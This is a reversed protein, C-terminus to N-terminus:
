NNQRNERRRQYPRTPSYNKIYETVFSLMEPYHRKIINPMEKFFTINDNVMLHIYPNFTDYLDQKAMSEERLYNKSIVGLYKLAAIAVELDACEDDHEGQSIDINNLIRAYKPKKKNNIIHEILTTRDLPYISEYVKYVYAFIAMFWFADLADSNVKSNLTTRLLNYFNDVEEAPIKTRPVRESSTIYDCLFTDVSMEKLTNPDKEISKEDGSFSHVSSKFIIIGSPEIAVYYSPRTSTNFTNMRVGEFSAAAINRYNCLMDNYKFFERFKAKELFLSGSKTTKEYYYENSTANYKKEWCETDNYNLQIYSRAM